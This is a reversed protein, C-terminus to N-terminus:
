DSARSTTSDSRSTPRDWRGGGEGVARKKGQHLPNGLIVYPPLGRAPGTPATPRRDRRHQAARRRGAREGLGGGRRPERDARDNRRHRPREVRPADGSCPSSTPADPWVLCCSASRFGPCRRRSRSSRGATSSPADPKMDFTDLHSPGGLALAHDGVPGQWRGDAGIGAHGLYDALTLGLPGLTGFECSPDGSYLRLGFGM